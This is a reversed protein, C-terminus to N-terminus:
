RKKFHFSTDNPQKKPIKNKEMFANQQKSKGALYEKLAANYQKSWAAKQQKWLEDKQVEGAAQGDPRKGKDKPM